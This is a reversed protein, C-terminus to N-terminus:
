FTSGLLLSSEGVYLKAKFSDIELQSSNKCEINALHFVITFLFISLM